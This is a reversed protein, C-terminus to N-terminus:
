FPFYELVLDHRRFGSFMYPLETRAQKIQAREASAPRYLRYYQIREFLRKAFRRCLIKFQVIKYNHDPEDTMLNRVDLCPSGFRTMDPIHGFCEAAAQGFDMMLDIVQRVVEDYDYQSLPKGFIRLIEQEFEKMLDAAPIIIRSAFEKHPSETEM